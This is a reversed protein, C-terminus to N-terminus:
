RSLEGAATVRRYPSADGSEAIGKLKRGLYSFYVLIGIIGIAMQGITTTYIEEGLDNTRVGIGYMGEVVGFFVAVPLVIVFIRMGTPVGM